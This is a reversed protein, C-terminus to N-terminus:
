KVMQCIFSIHTYFELVHSLQPREKGVGGGGGGGVVGM